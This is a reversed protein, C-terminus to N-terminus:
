KAAQISKLIYEAVTVVDPTLENGSDTAVVTVVYNDIVELYTTQTMSSETGANNVTVNYTVKLATGSDSTFDDYEPDTITGELGYQTDALILHM